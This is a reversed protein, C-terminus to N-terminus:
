QPTEEELTRVNVIVNKKIGNREVNQLMIRNNGLYIQKEFRGNEGLYTKFFDALEGYTLPNEM